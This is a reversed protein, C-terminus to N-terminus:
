QFEHNAWITKLLYFKGAVTKESAVTDKQLKESSEFDMGLDGTGSGIGPRGPPPSSPLSFIPFTM